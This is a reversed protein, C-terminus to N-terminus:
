EYIKKIIFSFFWIFSKNKFDIEKEDKMYSSDLIYSRLYKSPLKSYEKDIKLNKDVLLSTKPTYLTKIIQEEKFIDLVKKQLDNVKEESLINSKLEELLLDLSTRKINSFNYWSSAQSSHFYPFINFEFYWLNVWTLIMDYEDKNLVVKAMDDILSFPNLNVEIWLEKLSNRIFNATLDINKDTNSYYLNISFPILDKDYYMNDNLVNYKALLEENIEITQNENKIPEEEIEKQSVLNEVFAFKEKELSDNNKNYIVFFEEKLEKEWNKVFYIKYSNTWEKISDYNERLRYYFVKNWSAFWTLKYDNVWVETTGSDVNWEILIDDKNIFNYKQISSPKQVYKLKEQFDDITYIKENETENQTNNTTTWVAEAILKSKKKYWLSQMISEFNKNQPEKKIDVETLYPNNIPIFNDKWLLEILNESNIKNLIFSRFDSNTIKNSNIFLWIYQPLIYKYNVLRPISNGIINDWDNFINVSQKNKLFSNTNPFINLTVKSINWTNYYENKELFIKSFWLSTDSSISTVKFSWSYLWATTPFNWYINENSLNDIVSKAIIPQFFLNLFNVDEIPYKFRIVKDTYEITTDKLIETTKINTNYNKILMYTEYIDAITIYSWDSWRVNENVYCEINKLNNIDCNTIDGVIKWQELDYKLMSRYLLSIIYQNNGSLDKTPNLSPFNWILAESVNWWQVPITKADDYLYLYVLHLLSVIFFITSILFLYKKVKQIKQINM